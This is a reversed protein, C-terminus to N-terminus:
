LVVDHGVERVHWDDRYERDVNWVALALFGPLPDRRVLGLVVRPSSVFLAQPANTDGFDGSVYEILPRARPLISETIQHWSQYYITTKAINQKTRKSPSAIM